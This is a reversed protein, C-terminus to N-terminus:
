SETRLINFTKDGAPIIETIIKVNDVDQPFAVTIVVPYQWDTKIEGSVSNEDAAFNAIECAGGTIHLDTGVVAPVEGEWEMIRFVRVGHSPIETEIFNDKRKIGIFKQTFFEFVAFKEINDPLRIESLKMKRSVCKEEWNGVTLTWWNKMTKCSATVDTLFISPCDPSHYDLIKAGPATTPIVHSLLKLRSEQLEPICESVNVVGGGLYHNTIITEAEDDTYLGLSLFTNNRKREDSKYKEPRIRIMTADPDTHWFRGTYNRLINQKIQIM